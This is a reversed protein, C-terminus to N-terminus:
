AAPIVVKTQHSRSVSLYRKIGLEWSIGVGSDVVLPCDVCTNGYPVQDDPGDYISPFYGATYTSGGSLPILSLEEPENPNTSECAPAAGSGSQVVKGRTEEDGLNLYCDGFKYLIANQQPSTGRNQVQVKTTYFDNGVVYSDTQTLRLGTSGVDVVTKIKFPNFRSGNGTVASQSVPTFANYYQGFTQDGVALLTGCSTIDGLTSPNGEYFEGGVGNGEHDVQCALNDGIAISTLPGNSTIVKETTAAQAGVREDSAGGGRPKDKQGEQSLAVGSALLVSAVIMTVLLVTRKM